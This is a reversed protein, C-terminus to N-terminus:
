MGVASAFSKTWEFFVTKQGERNRWWDQPRFFQDPAAVTRFTPAAPHSHEVGLFLRRARGTHFSTTVLLFSHANRRELESLLVAVEARTSLARHRVPIFWEERYGKSVAFHIAMDAENYGYFGPPGSVLVAPVYGQRVLDGAAMIRRGWPDGGLVVAYDAKAPGDNHILAYGFAPLWLPGTLWALICIAALVLVIKLFRSRPVAV